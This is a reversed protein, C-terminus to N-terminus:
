EKPRSSEIRKLKRWLTNRGVGLIRAAKAQNGRCARLTRLIHQAEAEELSILPEEVPEPASGWSELARKVMLPAEGPQFPLFIYGYAGRRMVQVAADVQSATALMLVPLDRVRAVGRSGPETILVEGDKSVVRHGEVELMAKLTMAHIRDSIDLEIRAM